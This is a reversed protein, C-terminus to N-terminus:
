GSQGWGSGVAVGVGGAGLGGGVVGAAGGRGGGSAARAGLRRDSSRAGLLSRTTLGDPRGLGLQMLRAAWQTRGATSAPPIATEVLRQGNTIVQNDM